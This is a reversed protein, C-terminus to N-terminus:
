SSSIIFSSFVDESIETMIDISFTDYGLIISDASFGSKSSQIKPRVAVLIKRNCIRLKRIKYISIARIYLYIICSPAPQHKAIVYTCEALTLSTQLM